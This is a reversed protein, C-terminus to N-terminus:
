QGIMAQYSNFREVIEQSFDDEVVQQECDAKCNKSAGFILMKKQKLDFSKVYAAITDDTKSKYAEFDQKQQKQYQEFDSLEKEQYLEFDGGRSTIGILGENLAIRGQDEFSVIFETGKIGIISFPTEVKLGRSKARKSIRYYIEGQEQRFTSNDSLLLEANENLIVKSDDLLTILVKTDVYTMLKDGDLLGEGIIARHKKISNAPLIKAKGEITVITAIPFVEEEGTITVTSEAFLNIMLSLVLLISKM